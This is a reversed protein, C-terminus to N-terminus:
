SSFPMRSRIEETWRQIDRVQFGVENGDALKLIMFARGNRYNGAFWTNQSIEVVDRLPYVMNRGWPPIFILRSDTLGMAGMTSVSVRGRLGQYYAKDPPLVWIEGSREVEARTSAMRRGRQWFFLGWVLGNIFGIAAVLFVIESADL